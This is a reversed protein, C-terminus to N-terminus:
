EQFKRDDIPDPIVRNDKPKNKKQEELFGIIVTVDENEPSKRYSIYIFRMSPKNKKM